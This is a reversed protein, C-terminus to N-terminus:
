SECYLLGNLINFLKNNEKIKNIEKNIDGFCIIKIDEKARTLATYLMSIEFLDDICLIIKNLTKGQSKHITLYNYPIFLKMNFLMIDDDIDTIKYEEGNVLNMDPINENAVLIDGESIYIEGIKCVVCKKTTTSLPNITIDYLIKLYKYRSALFTYDTNKSLDITNILYNKIHEPETMIDKIIKQVNLNNRYNYTLVMKDGNIYYPNFFVTDNLYLLLKISDNLSLKLESNNFKFNKFNITRKSNSKSYYISPLQLLDGIFIFNCEKYHEALWFILNIIDLPILSIEDIVVYNYKNSFLCYQKLPRFIIKNIPLKLFKHITMYDFKNESKMKLNDVASHTYAICLVKVDPMEIKMLSNLISTTKGTGAKGLIFKINNTKM